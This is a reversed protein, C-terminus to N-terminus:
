SGAPPQQIRVLVQEVYVVDDTPVALGNEIRPAYRSRRLAAMSSKIVGEPVDTTPSTVNEVHGDREVRFHMEVTKLVAEAPDLQSRDVSSVSPRYAILRPKELLKTNGVEALAKWAEAYSDYARRSSNSILYWDGFDTLLEGRLQQNVPTNGNVIELATALSAEGRRSGPGESFVPAGQSGGGSTNFIPTTDGGEVGYIYELTYARGIGRLPGVRRLDTPTAHRSLIALSREYFSRETTFRRQSEHYRATKDLRALLKLSSRGYAAEEVRLAYAIEKDAEAFRATALYATIMPDIFEIQEINFLGQTNRSLDLARKLAVVASEADNNALFSIGLGHLAPIQARDAPNGKATLIRLGRQYNEIAAPFKGLRHNVTGLNTLPGVLQLEEGGFQEETLAVLREAIPLAETYKREDFQARFDKYVALRETDTVAFAAASMGVCSLAALLPFLRPKM